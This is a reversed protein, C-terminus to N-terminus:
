NKVAKPYKHKIMEIYFNAHMKNLCCHVLMPEFYVIKKYIEEIFDSLNSVISIIKISTDCQKILDILKKKDTRTPRLRPIFEKEVYITLEVSPRSMKKCAYDEIQSM